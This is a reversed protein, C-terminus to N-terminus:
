GRGTRDAHVVTTVASQRNQTLEAAHERFEVIEVEAIGAARGVASAVDIGDEVEGLL